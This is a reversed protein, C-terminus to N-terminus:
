NSLVELYRYIEDSIKQFDDANQLDKKIIGLVEGYHCGLTELNQLAKDYQRNNIFNQTNAIATEFSSGDNKGDTRKIVIFKAITAKIKGIWTQSSEFEFKKAKIEPILQAFEASLELNNKPQNQLALKLQSIKSTIAFDARCLAEIKQLEGSYNQKLDVLDKLKVFSLIIKPLSDNAKLRELDLKVTSYNNQLESIQLQQKLLVDTHNLPELPKSAESIVTSLPQSQPAESNTKYIEAEINPFESKAEKKAQQYHFENLIYQGSFYIFIVLALWFIASFYRKNNKPKTINQQETM